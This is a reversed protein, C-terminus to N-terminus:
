STTSSSTRSRPATWCTSTTARDSDASTQCRGPRSSRMAARAERHFARRRQQAAGSRPLEPRQAPVPGGPPQRHHRQDRRHDDAATRRTVGVTVTETVGEIGLRFDVNLTRGLELVVGKHTQPAFGSLSATIDWEGPRLAPLFFRGAADTVREVVVGTAAQRATVTAGALAGGSVDRVVGGVEGTNTQAIAHTGVSLVMFAAARLVVVIGVPRTRHRNLRVEGGECPCFQMKGGDRCEHLLRPM